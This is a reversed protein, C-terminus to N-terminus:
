RKSKAEDTTAPQLYGLAWLSLHSSYVTHVGSHINPTTPKRCNSLKAKSCIIVVLAARLLSILGYTFGYWELAAEWGFSELTSVMAVLACSQPM